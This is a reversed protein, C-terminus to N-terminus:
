KFTTNQQNIYTGKEFKFTSGKELLYREKQSGTFDM